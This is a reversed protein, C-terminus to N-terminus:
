RGYGENFNQSWVRQYAEMTLDDFIVLRVLTIIGPHITLTDRISALAIPAAQTIPYRFAGTSISPFAITKLSHAQALELCAQYCRRLLIEEGTTGGQWIPGVTHIVYPARLRGGTTIVAEGPPLPGQRQHIEQCAALIAPGGARHIAGDVGGGGMLSSNAANVIAETDQHTIDGAILELHTRGLRTKM